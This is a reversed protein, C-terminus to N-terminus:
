GLKAIEADLASIIGPLVARELVGIIPGYSAPLNAIADDLLPGLEKDVVLKALDELVQKEVVDM